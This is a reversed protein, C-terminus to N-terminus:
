PLKPQCVASVRVHNRQDDLVFGGRCHDLNKIFEWKREHVFMIRSPKWM